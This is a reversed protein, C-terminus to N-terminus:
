SGSPSPAFVSPVMAARMAQVAKDVSEIRRSLEENVVRMLASLENRTPNLEEADDPDASVILKELCAYASHVERLSDTDDCVLLTLSAATDQEPDFAIHDGESCISSQAAAGPTMAM